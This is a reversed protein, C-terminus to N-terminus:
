YLFLLLFSFVLPFTFQAKVEKLITLHTGEFDYVRDIKEEPVVIELTGKRVGNVDM